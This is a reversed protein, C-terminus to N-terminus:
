SSAVQFPHHKKEWRSWMSDFIEQIVVEAKYPAASRLCASPPFKEPYKLVQKLANAVSIPTQEQSVVGSDVHLLNKVQECHTTVIPVGSALSELVVLPLGEYVSTLAFVDVIQQLQALSPRPLAGLLTIQHCLNLAKIETKIAGELEGAGVLLLHVNPDSLAAISRILLLPNKQPHLRGAFLVLKIESSLGLSSTLKLKQHAKESPSLPYFLEDDIANKVSEIRQALAPYKSQYFQTTKANCSLVQNFQSLLSRELAFYAAPFKQWLIADGGRGKGLVQEQIDNHVFLTKDGAWGLTSLTPELRHFHMFDSSLQRGFMAATYKISTPILKRVNDDLCKFLPFFDIEREFIEARQWRGVSWESSGATGVLRLHFHKPSYKIFADIVSQIGGITSHWPDYQYFITLVPKRM